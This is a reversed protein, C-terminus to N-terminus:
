NKALFFTIEKCSKSQDQIYHSKHKGSSLDSKCKEIDEIHRPRKSLIVDKCSSSRHKSPKKNEELHSIKPSAAGGSSSKSTKKQNHHSTKPLLDKIGEM